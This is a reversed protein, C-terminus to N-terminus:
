NRWIKERGTLWRYMDICQKSGSDGFLRYIISKLICKVYSWSQRRYNIFGFERNIRNVENMFNMTYQPNTSIGGVSAAAVTVDVFVPKARAISSYLLKSDAAIKYNIDFVAKTSLIRKRHFVGQHHPLWPRAGLWKDQMQSWERNQMTMLRSAGNTICVNGYVIETNIDVRQVAESILTLVSEDYLMDGAGIFVAWEGTILRCAKNFADYVGSDPESLWYDISNEYKRLLDLTGDTSGGDIVIYEVNAYSQNLVSLITTELDKVGNFVATIVTVLPQDASNKAVIGKLRKGGCIPSHLIQM